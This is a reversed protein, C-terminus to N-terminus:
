QYSSANMPGRTCWVLHVQTIDMIDVNGSGFDVRWAGSAPLATQTASWYLSAQIGTFINSPVYPSSLTPSILSALEVVSPLRWGRAGGANKNVCYSTADRWLMLTSVPAQEWVLGTNNDRVAQNNFSALVTFRSSSPLNEDWNQASTASTGGKNPPAAGANDSMLVLGAITGVLMIIWVRNVSSYRM